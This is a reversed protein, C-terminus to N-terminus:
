ETCVRSEGRSVGCGREERMERGEREGGGGEEGEKRVGCSDRLIFPDNPTDYGECIVRLQRMEYKASLEAM